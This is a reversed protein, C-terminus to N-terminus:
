PNVKYEWLLVNDKIQTAVGEDTNWDPHNYSHM